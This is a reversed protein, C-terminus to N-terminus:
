KACKLKYSQINREGLKTIAFWELGWGRKVLHEKRDKEFGFDLLRFLKLAPIIRVDFATYVFSAAMLFVSLEDEANGQERCFETLWERFIYKEGVECDSLASAINGREEQAYEPRGGSDPPLFREWRTENWLADFLVVFQEKPSLLKFLDIRPTVELRNKENVVFLNLTKSLNYFLHIIWSDQQNATSKLEEQYSMLENLAFVQKRGIFSNAATLKMGNHESIYSLFTQFDSLVTTRSASLEEKSFACSLNQDVEFPQEYNVELEDEDYEQMFWIRFDEEWTESDPDLEYYSEFRRIYRQPNKCAALLNDRQEGEVCGREHLFKCFKKFAVLISRVDSKSSNWVKQIYWNGLYDEIDSGTVELLSKEEYGLFYNNAFFGIQHKHELATEESLGKEHKLYNYFAEVIRKAEEELERPHM